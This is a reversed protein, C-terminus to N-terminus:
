KTHANTGAMLPISSLYHDAKAATAEISQYKMYSKPHDVLQGNKDRKKGLPNKSFEVRIAGKDSSALVAGQLQERVARATSVDEFEIFCNVGRPARVLKMQLFGKHHAFRGELEQKSVSESLNGIFLTNCPTTERSSKMGLLALQDGAEGNSLRPRKTSYDDRIYMNKRALEARLINSQDFCLSQLAHIASRAAPPHTFLAFGQAQGNKWNMQSAQYGPLFRLMNNLERERVNEPFGTIFVTRIEEGGHQQTSYLAASPDCADTAQVPFEPQAEYTGDDCEGNGGGANGYATGPQVTGPAATQDPVYGNGNM